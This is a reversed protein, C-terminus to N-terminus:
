LDNRSQRLVTERMRQMEVHPPDHPVLIKSGCRPCEPGTAGWKLDAFFDVCVQPDAFYRIAEM